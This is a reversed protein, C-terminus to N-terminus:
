ERTEATEDVPAPPMHTLVRGSREGPISIRISTGGTDACDVSMSGGLAHVHSAVAYLGLGSRPATEAGTQAQTVIKARMEADLGPGHDRVDIILAGDARKCDVVVDSGPAHKLANDILNQVISFIRRRDSQFEFASEAGPWRVQGNCRPFCTNRVDDFLGRLVFSSMSVEHRGRGLRDLEILQDVASLLVHCQRGIAEIAERQEPSLAGLSGEELLATYGAVVNLPNRMDHVAMAVYRRAPADPAANTAAAPSEVAVPAESQARAGLVVGCLAALFRLFAIEEPRFVPRPLGVHLCGEIRPTRFPFVGLSEDGKSRLQPTGTTRANRLLGDAPLPDVAQRSWRGEGAIIAYARGVRTLGIAVSPTDLLLSTTRCIRHCLEGLDRAGHWQSELDLFQTLRLYSHSDDTPM